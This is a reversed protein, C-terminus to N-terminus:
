TTSAGMMSFAPMMSAGDNRLIEAHLRHIPTGMITVEPNSSNKMFQFVTTRANPVMVANKAFCVAPGSGMSRM